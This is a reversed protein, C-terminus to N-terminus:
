EVLPEEGRGVLDFPAWFAPHDFGPGRRLAREAENFADATSRGRSSSLLAMLTKAARAEIPWHSILIAHAGAHFFARALGSLGDAAYRKLPAATNCASLIVLDADLRLGAIETSTLLGDDTQSTPTLVLAPEGALSEKALLGHTAFALVRYSGLNANKVAAKTAAAGVILEGRGMAFLDNMASLQDATEPISPLSRVDDVAESTGQLFMLKSLLTASVDIDAKRLPGLVPDSSGVCGSRSPASRRPRTSALAVAFSPTLTITAQDSLWAASAYPPAAGPMGTPESTVLVSLPLSEIPGDAAVVLRSLKSFASGFGDFLLRFLAHSASLDFDAIATPDLGKRLRIVTDRLVTRGVRLDSLRM